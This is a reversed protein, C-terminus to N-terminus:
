YRRENKCQKDKACSCKKVIAVSRVYRFYDFKMLTM